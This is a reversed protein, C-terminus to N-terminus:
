LSAVINGDALITHKCVNESFSHDAPIVRTTLVM